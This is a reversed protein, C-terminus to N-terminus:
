IKKKSNMFEKSFEIGKQKFKQAIDPTYVEDATESFLKVWRAFSERKILPMKVHAGVFNGYYTDEGLIKALWFDALLEIHDIWEENTIDDGLEHIFYHGLLEDEIAKEYFSTM